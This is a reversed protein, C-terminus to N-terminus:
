QNNKKFKSSNRTSTKFKNKKQKNINTKTQKFSIISLLTKKKHQRHHLTHAITRTNTISPGNIEFMWDFL